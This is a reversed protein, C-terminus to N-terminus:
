VSESLEAGVWVGGALGPRQGLAGLALVFQGSEDTTARVYRSLDALDFVLVQAGVAAAGSALRVRGELVPEASVGVSSLLGVFCAIAIKM